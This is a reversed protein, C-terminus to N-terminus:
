FIDWDFGALRHIERPTLGTSCLLFNCKLLCVKALVKTGTSYIYIKLNNALLSGLENSINKGLPMGAFNDARPGAFRGDVGKHLEGETVRNTERLWPSAGPLAAQLRLCGRWDTKGWEM